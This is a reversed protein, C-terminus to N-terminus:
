AATNRARKQAMLVTHMDEEIGHRVDVLFKGALFDRGLLVPYAMARRDALTFKATFEHGEVVTPLAVKYRSQHAGSSSRVTVQRYKGAPVTVEKGTYLGLEPGFLTFALGDNTEHVNTAWISCSDAGTDVKAPIDAIGDVTIFASRGISEMDATQM